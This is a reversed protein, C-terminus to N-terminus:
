EPHKEAAIKEVILSRKNKIFDQEIHKVTYGFCHCVLDDLKADTNDSVKESIETPAEKDNPNLNAVYGAKFESM